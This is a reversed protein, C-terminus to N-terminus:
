IGAKPQAVIRAVLAGTVAVVSLAAFAGRPLTDVFM